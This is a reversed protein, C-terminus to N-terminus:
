HDSSILGSHDHDITDFLFKLLEEIRPENRRSKDNNAEIFETLAM